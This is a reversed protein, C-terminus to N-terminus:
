LSKAKVETCLRSIFGGDPSVKLIEVNFYRDRKNFVRRTTFCSRCKFTAETISTKTFNSQVEKCRPCEALFYQHNVM